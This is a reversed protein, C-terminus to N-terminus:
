SVVSLPHGKHDLRQHLRAGRRRMRRVKSLRSSHKGEDSWPGSAKPPTTEGWKVRHPKQAWARPGPGRSGMQLGNALAGVWVMKGPLPTPSIGPPGDRCAADKVGSHRKLRDPGPGPARSRPLAM